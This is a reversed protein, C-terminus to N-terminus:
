AHGAEDSLSAFDIGLLAMAAPLREEAPLEFLIHESALVSLWANDALEQELQGESWGAYGLTVLLRQPGQGEGVAQLIDRSTTLGIKDNVQLTSQWPGGTDHLVFGRDTQVPGGFHVLVDELEVPKLPMNIQAFLESLTLSIPRNVVIGMAGQENHECVYTLSKAFFPDTMAPMAILFHNTLNLGSM